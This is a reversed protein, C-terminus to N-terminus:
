MYYGVELCSLMIVFMLCDPFGPSPNVHLITFHVGPHVCTGLLVCTVAVIGSAAVGRSAVDRRAEFMSVLAASFLLARGNCGKYSRQRAIPWLLVFCDSLAALASCWFCM